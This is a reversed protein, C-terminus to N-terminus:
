SKDSSFHKQGKSSGKNFPSITFLPWFISMLLPLSTQFNKFTIDIYSNLLFLNLNVKERACTPPSAPLSVLVLITPRDVACKAVHCYGQSQVRVRARNQAKKKKQSNINGSRLGTAWDLRLGAVIGVRGSLNGM